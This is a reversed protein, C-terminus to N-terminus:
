GAKTTSQCVAWWRKVHAAQLWIAPMLLITVSM